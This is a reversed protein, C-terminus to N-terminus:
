FDACEADCEKCSLLCICDYGFRQEVLVGNPCTWWKKNITVTNSKVMLDGLITWWKKSITVTNSKVM